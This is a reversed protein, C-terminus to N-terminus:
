PLLRWSKKAQRNAAQISLKRGTMAGEAHGFPGLIGVALNTLVATKGM